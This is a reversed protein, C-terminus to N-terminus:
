RHRSLNKHQSRSGYMERDTARHLMDCKFHGAPPDLEGLRWVVARISSISSCDRTMTVDNYNNCIFLSNIIHHYYDYYFLLSFMGLLSNLGNFTTKFFSATGNNSDGLIPVTVSDRAEQM